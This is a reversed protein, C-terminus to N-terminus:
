PLTIPKANVANPTITGLRAYLSDPKNNFLMSYYVANSMVKKVYDRTENFPITEAYIAGELPIAARWRRARGPGANYAASALVPHNDLSELVMRMYSTGLLLNTEPDTVRRPDYDKLGVQKAVWKATAPMLQMLGSAGASSKANTVFRSEQRMLGYVWADDLAQAQAAPRVQELFPALFRMHYDHLTKTRDAAQIARDYIQQQRALEAAALLQRDDLNRVTWNWERIGELRLDLRFFTLARLLGPNARAAELEAAQTPIARLPIRIGRGLEEDALNSYFHPQGAITEFLVRAKEPQNAAKFARAQWYIWEPKEKLAAPLTDIVARVAPWNKQRLLARVRWEAADHSLQAPRSRNFWEVAMDMHRLAGQHAVQGWAWTKETEGLDRGWRELQGAAFVPDNRALRQIALALMERNPRENLSSAALRTLWVPAKDVMFDLQRADPQQAAPLTRIMQRAQPIRNLEFLFRIRAWRHDLTLWNELEGMLAQCGGSTDTLTLWLAKSEEVASLDRLHLRALLSLCRAEQDPAALQAFQQQAERWAGRRMMAKLWDGRLREGLYDGAWRELFVGVEAAERKDLGQSLLYYDAYDALAYHQNKLQQALAELQPRKGTRLAERALLFQADDSSAQAAREQALLAPAHTVLGVGLIGLWLLRAFGSHWKM